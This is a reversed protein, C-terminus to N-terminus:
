VNPLISANALSLYMEMSKQSVSFPTPFPVQEQFGREYNKCADEAFDALKKSSGEKKLHKDWRVVKCLLHEVFITSFGILKKDEEKMYTELHDYVVDFAFRTATTSELQFGLSELGRFAGLSQNRWIWDALTWREPFQVIGVLALTNVLQLATLGGIGYIKLGHILELAEFWTRKNGAYTAPDQDAMDGLFDLWGHSVKDEYYPCFKEQLTLKRGGTNNITPQANLANSPQGWIRIDSVMYEMGLLPTGGDAFKFLMNQKLIFGFKEAMERASDSWFGVGLRSALLCQFNITKPGQGTGFFALINALGYRSTLVREHFVSNFLSIQLNFHRCLNTHDPNHQHQSDRTAHLGRALRGLIDVVAAEGKRVQIAERLMLSGKTMSLAPTCVEELSITKHLPARLKTTTKNSPAKSLYGLHDMVCTHLIEGIKKVNDRTEQNILTRMADILPGSLSDFSSIIKSYLYQRNKRTSPSTALLSGSSELLSRLGDLALVGDSGMTNVICSLVAGKYVCRHLATDNTIDKDAKQKSAAKGAKEKKEKKKGKGGKSKKKSNEGRTNGVNGKAGGKKGEGEEDEVEKGDKNTKKRVIKDYRVLYAKSTLDIYGEDKSSKLGYLNAPLNFLDKPQDGESPLTPQANHDAHASNPNNATWIRQTEKVLHWLHSCLSALPPSIAEFELYGLSYFKNAIIHGLGEGTQQKSMWKYLQILIRGVKWQSVGNAVKALAGMEVAQAICETSKGIQFLEAMGQCLDDDGVVALFGEFMAHTSAHDVWLEFTSRINNDKWKSGQSRAVGAASVFSKLEGRIRDPSLLDQVMQVSEGNVMRSWVAFARSAPPPKAVIPQELNTWYSELLKDCNSSINSITNWEPKAYGQYVLLYEVVREKNVRHDLVNEVDYEKTMEVDDEAARCTNVHSSMSGSEDERNEDSDNVGPDRGDQVGTNEEELHVANKSMQNGADERADGGDGEPRRSDEESGGEGGDHESGNADEEFHEGTNCEDENSRSGALDGGRTVQEIEVPADGITVEPIVSVSSSREQGGDKKKRKAGRKVIPPAKGGSTRKRQKKSAGPASKQQKPAPHISIQESSCKRKVAQGTDLSRDEIPAPITKRNRRECQEILALAEDISTSANNSTEQLRALLIPNSEIETENDRHTPVPPGYVRGLGDFCSLPLASKLWAAFGKNSQLRSAEITRCEAEGELRIKWFPKWEQFELGVVTEVKANAFDVGGISPDQEPEGEDDGAEAIDVRLGSRELDRRIDIMAKEEERAFNRLNKRQNLRITQRAVGLHRQIEQYQLQALHGLKVREEEGFPDTPLEPIPYTKGTDPDVYEFLTPLMRATFGEKLRVCGYRQLELLSYCSEWTIKTAHAVGGGLTTFGNEGWNLNAARHNQVTGFNGYRNPPIM